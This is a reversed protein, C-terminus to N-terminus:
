VMVTDTFILGVSVRLPESVSASTMAQSSKKLTLKLGQSKEIAFDRVGEGEVDLFGEEKCSGPSFQGTLKGKHPRRRREVLGTMAYDSDSGSRWTDREVEQEDMEGRRASYDVTVEEESSESSLGDEQKVVPLFLDLGEMPKPWVKNRFAYVIRTMRIM